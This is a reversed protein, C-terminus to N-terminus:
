LIFGPWVGKEIGLERATICGEAIDVLVDQMSYEPLCQDRYARKTHTQRVQRYAQHFRIKASM